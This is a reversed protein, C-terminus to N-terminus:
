KDLLSYRNLIEKTQLFTFPKYEVSDMGAELCIRKVEPDKHATLGIIKTNKLVPDFRSERLKKTCVHGEMVPMSYDMFIVSVPKNYVLFKMCHELAIEGDYATEVVFGLRELYDQMVEANLVDDDVVLAIKETEDEQCLFTAQYRPSEQAAKKKQDQAKPSEIRQPRSQITVKTRQANQPSTTKASINATVLRKLKSPRIPPSGEVISTMNKNAASAEKIQSSKQGFSENTLPVSYIQLSSAQPRNINSNLKFKDDINVWESQKQKVNFLLKPSQATYPIYHGSSVNLLTDTIPFLSDEKLKTRNYYSIEVPQPSPPANFEKIPSKGLIDAFADMKAIGQAMMLVVRDIDFDKEEQNPETEEFRTITQHITQIYNEDLDTAVRLVEFCITTGQGKKSKIDICIDGGSLYLLLVQAMRFGIGIGAAKAPVVDSFPNELITALKKLNDEDIGMGTDLIEFRIFEENRGPKVKVIVGGTYTYKISNDIFIWLLGAIKDKDSSIELDDACALKISLKKRKAKISLTRLLDSVVKKVNMPESSVKLTKDISRSFDLTNQVFLGVGYGVHSLLTAEEKIAAMEAEAQKDNLHIQFKNCLELLVDTGGIIHHIPTYLEHSLSRILNFSYNLKSNLDGLVIKEEINDLVTFVFFKDKNYLINFTLQIFNSLYFKLVLPNPLKNTWSALKFYEKLFYFFDNICFPCEVKHFMGFHERQTELKLQYETRKKDAKKVKASYIEIARFVKMAQASKSYFKYNSSRGGIKSSSVNNEYFEQIMATLVHMTKTDSELKTFEERFCKDLKIGYKMRIRSVNVAQELHVM